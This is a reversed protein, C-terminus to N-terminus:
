QCDISLPNIYKKFNQYCTGFRKIDFGGFISQKLCKRRIKTYKLCNKEKPSHNNLKPLFTYKEAESFSFNLLIIKALMSKTPVFDPHSFIYMALRYTCIEM